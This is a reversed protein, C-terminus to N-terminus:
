SLFYAYQKFSYRESITELILKENRQEKDLDLRAEVARSEAEGSHLIYTATIAAM